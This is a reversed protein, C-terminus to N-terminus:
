SSSLIRLSAQTRCRKERLLSLRPLRFFFSESQCLFVSLFRDRVLRHRERDRQLSAFHAAKESSFRQREEEIKRRTDDREETLQRIQNSVDADVKRRMEKLKAEEREVKMQLETFHREKEELFRSREDDLGTRKSTLQFLIFLFSYVLCLILIDGVEDQVRGLWQNFVRRVDGAM